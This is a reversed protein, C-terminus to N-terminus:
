PNGGDIELRAYLTKYSEDVAYSEGGVLVVRTSDAEYDKEVRAIQSVAILMTQQRNLLGVEIFGKVTEGGGEGCPLADGLRRVV